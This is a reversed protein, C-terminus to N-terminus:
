ETQLNYRALTHYEAIIEEFRSMAFPKSLFYDAGSQLAIRRCDSDSNASIAIILQNLHRRDAREDSANEEAELRRFASIAEPGDMFPMQQDMIVADFRRSRLIELATLGNNARTIVYGENKLSRSLLNLITPSDDVILVSKSDASTKVSSASESPAPISEFVDSSSSPIRQGPSSGRFPIKNSTADFIDNRFRVHSGVDQSRTPDHTEYSPLSLFSSQQRLVIDTADAEFFSRVLSEFETVTTSRNIFADADKSTAYKASHDGTSSGTLCILQRTPKKSIPGFLRAHYEELKRAAIDRFEEVVSGGWPLSVQDDIIIIDFHSESAQRLAATIDDAVTVDFRGRHLNDVLFADDDSTDVFLVRWTKYSSPLSVSLSETSIIGIKINRKWEKELDEVSANSPLLLRGSGSLLSRSSLKKAAEPIFPIEFWVILGSREGRKQVGCAGHLAQVRCKLCYLGLGTGGVKEQRAKFLSFFSAVTLTDLEDGSDHVEVRLFDQLMLASGREVLSVHIEVTGDRTFKAANTVVCLMNDFLWSADTFIKTSFCELKSPSVTIDVDEYSERCLKVVRDIIPDIYVLSLDPTLTLGKATKHFDSHRGIAMSMFSVTNELSLCMNLEDDLLAHWRPDESFPLRSLLDRKETLSSLM